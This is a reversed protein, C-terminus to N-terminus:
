NEIKLIGAGAVPFCVEVTTPLNRPQYYEATVAQILHQVREAEVLASICGGLGAGTRGAGLVGDVDSAIDVLTDLEECSVAYGGPQRYLRANEAGIFDPNEVQSTNGYRLAEILQDIVKDDLEAEVKVRESGNYASIRDGEHSFSILQGFAAIDGKHLFEAAKKSRECEALGFLCVGRVRYGEPPEDHTQYLKRLEEEREPLELALQERSIRLPLSKILEYLYSEDVNLNGTNLDRLHKVQGDLTPFRNKLLMMGIEYAAVRENFINKAGAAKKAEVLSNCIVVRYDDPFPAYDVTIPFFGINSIFGQKSLKIAAHDGKGGRTGIYWEATGCLDVLDNPSISLDNIAAAAEASAVVLASSSGLGAAIQIDGDVLANMGYFKKTYSGDDARHLEQLYLFAAKVYNSWDGSTGQRKREDSQEQTWQAWDRIKESPLEQSISFRRPPFKPNLNHLIVQDDARRSAVIRIENSAIPNVCGGRHDIHMGVLNIRAPARAVIVKQDVGYIRGFEHLVRAYRRMQQRIFEPRDGYIEKFKQLISPKGNFSTFPHFNNFTQQLQYLQQM